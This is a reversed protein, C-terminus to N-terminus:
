ASAWSPRANAPLKETHTRVLRAVADRSLAQRRFSIFLPENPAADREALWAGLVKASDKRLPTVREKRSKGMCRVHAGVGLVVDECKLQIIESVRLGTQSGLLLLARDRRGIWTAPDPAAILAEIEPRKLYAIIRKEHRKTAMSLIRQSHHLLQPEQISVYKFFSRLAALRQNRSRAGNLRSEEIFSLFAGVQEADVDAVTLETPLRGLRESLYKLLLRFTDRYSAVTNPSVQLEKLLRETFFRRVYLPLPYTKM